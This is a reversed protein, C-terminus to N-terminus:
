FAGVSCSIIHIQQICNFCDASVDQHLINHMTFSEATRYFARKCLIFPLSENIFSSLSTQMWRVEASFM